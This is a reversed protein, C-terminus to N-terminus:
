LILRILFQTCLRSFSPYLLFNRGVFAWWTLSLAQAHPVSSSLCSLPCYSHSLSWFLPMWKKTHAYAVSCALCYVPYCYDSLVCIRLLLELTSPGPYLLHVVLCLLSRLYLIGIWYPFYVLSLAGLQSITLCMGDAGFLHHQMPVFGYVIPALTRVILRFLKSTSILLSSFWTVYGVPVVVGVIWSSGLCHRPWTFRLLGPWGVCSGSTISQLDTSVLARSYDM